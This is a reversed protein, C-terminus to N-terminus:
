GMEKKQSKKNKGHNYAEEIAESRTIDGKQLKEWIEKLKKEM